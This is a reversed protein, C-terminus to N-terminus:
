CQLSGGANIIAQKLARVSLERILQIRLELSARWSDRPSLGDLINEAVTRFMNENIEAGSLLNEVKGCRIPVPAAVGFAIAATAIHKCDKTLSVNAACGLTSIEMANRQGFKIYCGGHQAYSTKPIIVAALIEKDQRLSTKGPGTHFGNIPVLRTGDGSQIELMADLVYLSPVSDASVAGNCINGGITAINRIQPSGVQRCAHALMPIKELIIPNESIETFCCGSGIVLAGDDRIKITKLEPIGLLSILSAQRLKRERMRIMVDTGGAVLVAGEKASLYELAEAVSSANFTNFIDYM